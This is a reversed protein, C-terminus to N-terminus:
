RAGSPRSATAPQKAASEAALLEAPRLLWLTAHEEAVALPALQYFELFPGAELDGGGTVAVRLQARPIKCWYRHTPGCREAIGWVTRREGREYLALNARFVSHWVTWYNGAVHTCDHALL